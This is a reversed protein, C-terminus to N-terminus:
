SEFACGRLRAGDLKPFMMKGVTGEHYHTRLTEAALLEHIESVAERSLKGIDSEQTSSQVPSSEEKANDDLDKPDNVTTKRAMRKLLWRTDQMVQDSPNEIMDICKEVSHM